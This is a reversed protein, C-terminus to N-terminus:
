KSAPWVARALEVFGVAVGLLLGALLCWPSTGLWTDIIYGIAGLMVIAAILTYSAVAAPASRRVNEQFAIIARELFLGRDRDSDPAM